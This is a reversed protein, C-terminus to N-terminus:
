PKLTEFIPYAGAANRAQAMTWVEVGRMGSTTCYDVKDAISAPTEYFILGVEATGSGCPSPVSVLADSASAAWYTVGGVADEHLTLGTGAAALAADVWEQTVHNDTCGIPAVETDAAAQCTWPPASCTPDAELAAYNAYPAVPAVHDGTTDGWVLGFGGVGMVLKGVPFGAAVLEGRDNDISYPQPATDWPPAPSGLPSLPLPVVWWGWTQDPPIYSMIMVADIDDACAALAAMQTAQDSGYVPGVATTIVGAPWAARLATLIEAACAGDYGGGEWDLDVGDLGIDLLTTTIAAALDDVTGGTCADAFIADSGGEGGLDVLVTVGATHAAEIFAQAATTWEDMTAPGYGTVDLAYAGGASSVELFSLFLHTLHDYPVDAAGVEAWQYDPHSGVVWMGPSAPLCVGTSTCTDDGCDGCSPIAHAGGCRDTASLAGCERGAAACLEAETEPACLVDIGPAADASADATPAAADATPTTGDPGVAADIAAGDDDSCAAALAVLVLLPGILIVRM